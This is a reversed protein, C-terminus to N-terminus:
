YPLTHEQTHFWMPAPKQDAAINAPYWLKVLIERSDSTEPTLIEERETDIIHFYTTGVGSTIEASTLADPTVKQSVQCGCLTLAILLSSLTRM